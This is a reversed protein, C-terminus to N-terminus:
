AGNAVLVCQGRQVPQQILMRVSPYPDGRELGDVLKLLSGVLVAVNSLAEYVVAVWQHRHCRSAQM